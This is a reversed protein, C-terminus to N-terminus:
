ILTLCDNTDRMPTKVTNIFCQQLMIQNTKTNKYSVTILRTTQPANSLQCDLVRQKLAEVKKFLRVLVWGLTLLTLTVEWVLLHQQLM